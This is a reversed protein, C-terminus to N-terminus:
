LLWEVQWPDVESRYASSETPPKLRTRECGEQPSGFQCELKGDSFAKFHLDCFCQVLPDRDDCITDATNWQLQLISHTAIQNINAVSGFHRVSSM